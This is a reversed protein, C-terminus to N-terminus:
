IFYLWFIEIRVNGHINRWLSQVFPTGSIRFVTAPVGRDHPWFLGCRCVWAGMQFFSTDHPGGGVGLDLMRATPLRPLLLRLITEEPAQLDSKRAYNAVVFPLRYADKNQIMLRPEQYYNQSHCLWRDNQVPNIIAVHFGHWPALKKVTDNSPAGGAIM